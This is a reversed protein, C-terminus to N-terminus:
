VSTETLSLWDQGQSARLVDQSDPEQSLHHLKPNAIGEAPLRVLFNREVGDPLPRRQAHADSRAGVQKGLNVAKVNRCQPM